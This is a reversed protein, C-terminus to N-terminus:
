GVRITHNKSIVSCNELRVYYQLNRRLGQHHGLTGIAIYDERRCEHYPLDNNAQISTHEDRSTQQITIVKCCAILKLKIGAIVILM